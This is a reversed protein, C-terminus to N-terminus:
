CNRRYGTGRWDRAARPLLPYISSRTNTNVKDGGRRIRRLRPIAGEFTECLGGLDFVGTLSGRLRLVTREVRERHSERRFM